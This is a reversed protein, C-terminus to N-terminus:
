KTLLFNEIVLFKLGSNQFVSIAERPGLVIPYGHLNFSTNLLIGRGTKKEFRLMIDYLEPNAERSLIQARTTLDANHVAAMFDNRADTTDFTMMMYPSDLHKPNIIYDDAREKRIVPAFPMWFDRKKVMMNIVRVSDRNRPDALISRNGLARAGFEMSGSCRAVIEGDALLDAVQQNIDEVYRYKFGSHKIEEEAAENSFAPGTYFHRLKSTSDGNQHAVYFAAGIANTEDGCSPFIDLHDVEALESIRKNGKVNMFVGGSCYVRKIGTEEVCNRVWAAMLDENFLQLGGCVLDFRQRILDKQMRKAIHMTSEPIKRSFAMRNNKDIELYREFIRAVERSREPSAYPAMGMLKYEHEWPVFGLLFTIRSYINGLSDGVKTEAIRRLSGNEGISVSACLKDGGGDLTVVLCPDGSAGALGYYASAAHSLHHDTFDIQDRSIGFGELIKSRADKNRNISTKDRAEVRTIFRYTSSSAIKNRAVDYATADKEFAQLLGKNDLGLPMYESSFVYADVKKIDRIFSTILCEFARTPFGWYNKILNLREEQIAFRLEGNEVYAVSANHGDHIGVVKM